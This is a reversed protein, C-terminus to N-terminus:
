VVEVDDDVEVLNGSMRSCLMQLRSKDESDIWYGLKRHSHVEIAPALEGLKARLHQISKRPWAVGAAVLEATSLVKSELLLHLVEGHAESIGLAMRLDTIDVSPEM